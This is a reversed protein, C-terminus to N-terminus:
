NCLDIIVQTFIKCAMLSDAISLHEDPGHMHPDFGPMGAGFAVGGPIDHVYTGGGMSMCEGKLGTYTEYGKLLTKIFDSDGPTHHAAGMDGEIQFGCKTMAAVVINKCNEETACVPIRGDISGKLGDESITLLTFAFTLEESIEDEQAIGVAVGNGDGHPYFTCLAQIAATSATKALPLTNLLYLLATLANNGEQPRSGHAGLGQAHISVGDETTTLTYTAGTTESARQCYPTLAEEDMGVVLCQAEPPIVNMRFGGQFSAVRPTASEKEWTKTFSPCYRGKETNIVPFEADPSFTYPAFPNKSFYYAIDSSGSEEDTGMILKVNKSLEIGMDKIAKMAMMASVVPGKDDATGRGYLMGDVEKPTYPDTVTWGNGAGVVDLHGLIHLITEKDNFDATGVYNECNYTAFGMEEAMALSEALAKAPGEGYPMTPLPDAKESEIVVLRSTLAIFQERAEPRDFYQNIKDQYM